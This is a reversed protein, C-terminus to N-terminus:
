EISEVVAALDQLNASQYRQQTFTYHAHGILAAKEKDAGSAHKLKDAYTHRACYPTKTLPIDLKECLPRFVSDRLYRDSMKDWEVITGHSNHKALPFLWESPTDKALDTVIKRIQNPVPVRRNKGAATKSGGVLYMVGAEEHLDTKKLALMEGPRFGLYCLAYIYEAYPEAGIAQRIRELEDETIPDRQKSISEGVYLTRTIDYVVYTASIAYAWLLRAVVAMTARTRSGLPLADLCGQLDKATIKGIDRQHLPGFHRYATQYTRMTNTSIRQSHSPLWEEYLQNLTPTPKRHQAAGPLDSDFSFMQKCYEQAERKTRFGAKRKKVAIGGKYGLIFQVEYGTGRKYISGLGNARRGLRTHQAQPAGCTSCFKADSPLSTGCTMCFM